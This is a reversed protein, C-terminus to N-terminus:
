APVDNMLDTSLENDSPLAIESVEPAMQSAHIQQYTCTGLTEFWCGIQYRAFSFHTM